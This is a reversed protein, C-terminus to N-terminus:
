LLWEKLYQSVGYELILNQGPTIDSGDKEGVRTSERFMHVEKRAHFDDEGAKNTSDSNIM